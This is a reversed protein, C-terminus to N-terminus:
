INPEFSERYIEEFEEISMDAEDPHCQADIDIEICEEIYEKAFINGRNYRYNFQTQLDEKKWANLVTSDIANKWSEVSIDM